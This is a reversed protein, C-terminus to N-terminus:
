ITPYKNGDHINIPYHQRYNFSVTLVQITEALEYTYETASITAPYVDHVKIGYTRIERDKESSLQYIEMQGIYDKYYNAKHTYRNVALEQWQEFLFRESHETDLYFTASITGAFAHSQVMEIGPESAKKMTQTQLDHGPWGFTNCHLTLQRTDYKGMLMGPLTFVVEYKNTRAFGKSKSMSAVFSGISGLKPKPPVVSRRSKVEEVETKDSEPTIENISDDQLIENPTIVGKRLYYESPHATYLNHMATHYDFRERNWQEGRDMFPDEQHTQYGAYGVNQGNIQYITNLDHSM